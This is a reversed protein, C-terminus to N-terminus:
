RVSIALAATKKFLQNVNIQVQALYIMKEPTILLNKIDIFKMFLVKVNQM